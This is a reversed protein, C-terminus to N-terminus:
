FRAPGDYYSVMSGHEFNWLSAVEPTIGSVQLLIWGHIGMLIEWLIGNYIIGMIMGMFPAMIYLEGHNLLVEQAM